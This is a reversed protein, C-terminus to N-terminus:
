NTDETADAGHKHKQLVKFFETATINSDGNTDFNRWITLIQHENLDWGYRKMMDSFEQKSILNDHNSDIMRFTSTRRHCRDWLKEALQKTILDINSFSFSEDEMHSLTSEDALLLNFASGNIVITAGVFLSEAEFSKKTEPNIVRRRELFKGGVFGSNPIRKEFIQITDDARYFEIVFRRADNEPRSSILKASFRMVVKDYKLLKIYDKRPPRPVLHKVNELSDEESGYGNHPPLPAKPVVYERGSEQIPEFDADSLGYTDKYYVRTYEDARTLLMHRGFVTIYGGVRLDKDTYTDQDDMQDEGILSVGHNVVTRPLKRRSLFTPFLQTGANQPYDEHVSITDDALFYFVQFHHTEGLVQPDNWVAWFHLVKQDNLLFKRERQFQWTARQGNMAEAYQSITNDCEPQDKAAARRLSYTDLPFEQDEPQPREVKAFFERTLDDCKVLHLSHSYLKLESGVRLEKWTLFRDEDGAPIQQRSIFLGQDIGSNENRQESVQITDDDLYYYVRFQRYRLSEENSFQVDEVKYAWFRLVARNYALWKPLCNVTPKVEIFNPDEFDAKRQGYFNEEVPITRRQSPKTIVKEPEIVPIGDLVDFLHSKHFAPKQVDNSVFGPLNPVTNPDM